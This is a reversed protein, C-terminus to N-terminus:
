VAGRIGIQHRSCKQAARYKWGQQLLVRSIEVLARAAPLRSKEVGNRIRHDTLAVVPVPLRIVRENKSIKGCAAEGIQIIGRLTSIPHRQGKFIHTDRYAPTGDAIDNLLKEEALERGVGRRRIRSFGSLGRRRGVLDRYTSLPRRGSSSFGSLRTSGADKLHSDEDYPITLRKRSVRRLASEGEARGSRGTSNGEGAAIPKPRSGM